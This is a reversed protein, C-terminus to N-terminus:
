LQSQDRGSPTTRLEVQCTQPFWEADRSTRCRLVNLSSQRSEPWRLDRLLPFVVARLVLLFQSGRFSQSWWGMCVCVQQRKTDMGKPDRPAPDGQKEGCQTGGDM